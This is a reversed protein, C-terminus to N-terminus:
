SDAAVLSGLRVSQRIVFYPAHRAFMANAARVASKAEAISPYWRDLMSVEGARLFGVAFRASKTSM